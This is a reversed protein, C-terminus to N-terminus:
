TKKSRNIPTSCHFALVVVHREDMPLPEVRLTTAAQDGQGAGDAEARRLIGDAALRPLFQHIRLRTSATAADGITWIHLAGSVAPGRGRLIADLEVHGLAM